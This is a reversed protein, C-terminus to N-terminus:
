FGHRRNKRGLPRGRDRGTPVYVGSGRGSGRRRGRPRGTYPSSPTRRPHGSPTTLPDHLPTSLNQGMREVIRSSRRYPAPSTPTSVHSANGVPASPVAADATATQLGNTTQLGNEPATQQQTLPEHMVFKTWIKRDSALEYWDLGDPFGGKLKMIDQEYLKRLSLKRGRKRPGEMQSFLLIKPLRDNSMRIVHGMWLMRQRRCFEDM